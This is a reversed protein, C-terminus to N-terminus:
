YIQVAVHVGTEPAPLGAAAITKAPKTKAELKTDLLLLHMLSILSHMRSDIKELVASLGRDTLRKPDANDARLLRGINPVRLLM